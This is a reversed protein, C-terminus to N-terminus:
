YTPKEKNAKIMDLYADIKAYVEKASEKDKEANL